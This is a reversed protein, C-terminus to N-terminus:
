RHLKKLLLSSEIDGLESAKEWSSSAGKIDNLKEKVIGLKKWFIANKPNINIARELNKRANLYDKKQLFLLGLNYFVTDYEQKNTNTLQNDSFNSESNNLHLYLNDINKLAVSDDPKLDIAKYFDLLAGIRDGLCSKIVGRRDYILWNGPYLKITNELDIVEKKYDRIVRRLTDRNYYAESFDPKLRIALNYDNMADNINGLDKQILGRNNFAEAFDQKLEIAKNYDKKSGDLDGHEKKLVGRNYYALAVKTGNNIISNYFKLPDSYNKSYILNFTGLIIIIIIFIFSFKLKQHFISDFISVLFLVIGLVPLYTRCELYDFGGIDWFKSFMGPLLFSVVWVLGFILNFRIKDNFYKYVLYLFCLILLMGIFVYLNNYTPLGSLNNPIFFKYLIEPLLQLNYLFYSLKFDNQIGITNFRIILYPVTILIWLLILLLNERKKISIVKFKTIYIFFVLPAILAIEKSLLGLFCFLCHFIIYYFKKKDKYKILMIFASLLFIGVFLDSRAVLWLVANVNLPHVGFILTFFLSITKNLKILNLFFFLLFCFVIHLILNTLHFYFLNEGTTAKNFILSLIYLPRYYNNDDHSYFSDRLFAEKIVSSNNINVLNNKIVINDDLNIFGYSLTQFYVCFIVFLIILFPTIGMTIFHLFDVYKGKEALNECETIEQNINQIIM